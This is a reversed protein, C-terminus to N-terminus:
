PYKGNYLSVNNCRNKRFFYLKERLFSTILERENLLLALRLTKPLSFSNRTWKKISFLSCVHIKQIKLYSAYSLLRKRETEVGNKKNKPVLRLQTAEQTRDRRRKKEVFCTSKHCIRFAM